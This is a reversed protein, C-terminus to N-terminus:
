HCGVPNCLMAQRPISLNECTRIHDYHVHTCIVIYKWGEANLPRGENDQVPAKEIFERLSTIEIDQDETKGGCGTDIVIIARAAPVLKVYIFPREDYIDQYEKILFTSSSPTLRSATYASRPTHLHM